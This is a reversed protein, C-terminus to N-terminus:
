GMLNLFLVWFVFWLLFYSLGGNVLWWKAGRKEPAVDKALKGMVFNLVAAVAVALVLALLPSALLFSAYGAVMGVASSLLLSKMDSKM